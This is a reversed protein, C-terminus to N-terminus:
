AKAPAGTLPGDVVGLDVFARDHMVIYPREEFVLRGAGDHEVIQLAGMGYGM